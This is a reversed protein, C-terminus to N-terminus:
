HGVTKFSIRGCSHRRYHKLNKHSIFLTVNGNGCWIEGHGYHAHIQDAGGGAHIYNAGHSAYIFDKGAGGYIRDVQTTTQGSPKYDGWLVDGVAGARITDSGHGGLLENHRNHKSAAILGSQDAKHMKLDGDIKPWGEHSTNASAAGILAGTLLAVALFLRSFTAFM